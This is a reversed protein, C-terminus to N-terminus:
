PMRWSPAQATVAALQAPIAYNELGVSRAFSRTREALASTPGAWKTRRLQRVNLWLVVAVFDRGGLRSPEAASLLEDGLAARLTADITHGDGQFRLRCFAADAYGSRVFQGQADFLREMLQEPGLELMQAALADAVAILRSESLEARGANAQIAARVKDRAADRADRVERPELALPVTAALRLQAVIVDLVGQRDVIVVLGDKNLKRGAVRQEVAGVAGDDGVLSMEVPVLMTSLGGVAPRADPLYPRLAEDPPSLLSHVASTALSLPHAFCSWGDFSLECRWTSLCANNALRLDLLYKTHLAALNRTLEDLARQQEM